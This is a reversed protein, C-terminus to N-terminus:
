PVFVERNELVTQEERTAVDFMNLFAVTRVCDLCTTKAPPLVGAVLIKRARELLRDILGEDVAVPVETSRFVVSIGGTAEEAAEPWLYVLSMNRVTGFGNKELLTKYVHLQGGYIAIIKSYTGDPDGSAPIVKPKSTKLDLVSLHGKSNKFILDPVGSVELGTREDTWHMRHVPICEQGAYASLFGPLGAEHILKKQLSDMRTLLGAVPMSYPADRGERHMLNRLFFCRNCCQPVNLEALRKASVAFPNRVKKARTTRKTSM